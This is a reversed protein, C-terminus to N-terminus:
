PKRALLEKAEREDITVIKDIMCTAGGDLVHLADQICFKNISTSFGFGTQRDLGPCSGKLDIRKYGRAGGRMEVLITRSDIVPTRRMAASEICMQAEGINSGQAALPSVALSPAVVLAALIFSKTIM